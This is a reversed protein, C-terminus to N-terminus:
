RHTTATYVPEERTRMTAATFVHGQTVGGRGALFSRRPLLPPVLPRHSPRAMFVWRGEHGKGERQRRGEEKGTEGQGRQVTCGRRIDMRRERVGSGASRPVSMKAPHYGPIRPV